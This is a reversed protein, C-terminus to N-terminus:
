VFIGLIPLIERGVHVAISEMIPVKVSKMPTRIFILPWSM